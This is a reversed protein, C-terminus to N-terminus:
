AGPSTSASISRPDFNGLGPGPPSSNGPQNPSINGHVPQNPRGHPSVGQGMGNPRAGAPQADMGGHQAQASQSQNHMGAVDAQAGTGMQELQQLSSGQQELRKVLWDISSYPLKARRVKAPNSPDSVYFDVGILSGGTPIFDAEAAMLQDQEQKILAEYKQITIDYGQQINPPLFRFDAQRKRSTLRKVMYPKTDYMSPEPLEGRDLALLMNSGSDWDITLDAAMEENNGYPMLRYIKGIDERELKGAGYQLVHNLVLQKGLKSEIDESQAELKIQCALKTSKKYEAINAQEKKGIIPIIAQDDLYLRQLELYTEAVRKLYAEFRGINRSFRQKQSASRFILAYPDLQGNKEVELENVMMVNYLEEIQSTMYATYQSGDRGPLITPPSGTVTLGRVGPVATGQSLKSGAMMILKDDGLTIQHEAIKSAARNIEVQYPRMTKVPSRGRPSTPLKEFPESVIPFIGGPLEGEFIIEQDAVHYFYGTPYQPCPRFYFEKWMTQGKRQSYGAKQTDFIVYTQDASEKIKERREDGEPIMALIHDTEVMERTILYPSEDLDSANPARLLNFGYLPKFMLSGTFIAKQSAKPEHDLLQGTEPHLSQPEITDEETVPHTFVPYGEPNVEQEYGKFEGANPDFIIKTHVEGIGTFDDAWTSVKEELRHRQKGDVWVAQHLEAAKQDSLEKENHPSCEVGPASSVIQNAYIKQIKQIHNKTLRLKQEQSLARDDKIRNWFKSGKKTYHDGSILLINSRMEAFVEKDALDAANYLELLKASDHKEM